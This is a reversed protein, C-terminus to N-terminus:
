KINNKDKISKILADKAGQPMPSKEAREIQQQPTLTKYEDLAKQEDATHPPSGHDDGCGALFCLSLLFASLIRM